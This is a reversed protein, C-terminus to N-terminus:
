EVANIEAMGVRNGSTWSNYVIRFYRAQVPAIFQIGKLNPNAANTGAAPGTGNWIGQTTWTSNDASTLITLRTANEATSTYNPTMVLGKLTKADGMDIQIWKAATSSNSSRWVTTNSGDLLNTAPAGNTVNSVTAIWGTRAMTTGTPVAETTEVNTYTYSVKLYVAKHTTSLVIGKDKSDVKTIVLPVVYGAPNTLQGPDTIEIQIPSSERNGAAITAQDGSSIRYASAPLPLHSTGYQNNYAALLEPAAQITLNVQATVERSTYAHVQTTREGRIDAPTHTLDITQTLTPIGEIGPQLFVMMERSKLDEKKCSVLLLPFLALM